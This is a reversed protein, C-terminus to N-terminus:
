ETDEAKSKDEQKPPNQMWQFITQMAPNMSGWPQQQQQQQLIAPQAPLAQAQPFLFAFRSLNPSMAPAGTVQVNGPQVAMMAQPKLATVPIVGYQVLLPLAKQITIKGVRQIWEMSSLYVHNLVNCQVQRLIMETLSGLHSLEPEVTRLWQEISTRFAQVDIPNPVPMQEAENMLPYIKNLFYPFAPISRASNGYRELVRSSPIILDQQFLPQFIWDRHRLYVDDVPHRKQSHQQSYQQHQMPSSVSAVPVNVVSMLSSTDHLQPSIVLTLPLADYVHKPFQPKGVSFVRSQPNSVLFDWPIKYYIVVDELKNSDKQIMLFLIQALMHMSPPLVQVIANLKQIIFNDSEFPLSGKLQSTDVVDSLLQSLLDDPDTGKLESSKKPTTSEFSM